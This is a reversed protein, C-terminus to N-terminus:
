QYHLVHQFIMKHPNSAFVNFHPEYEHFCQIYPSCTSMNLQEGWANACSPVINM